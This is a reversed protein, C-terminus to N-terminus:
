YGAEGKRPPRGDVALRGAATLVALADVTVWENSCRRSVGGWDVLSRGRAGTKHTVRYYSAEAPFGGDPLRKSELLDLADVCRPDDLFGAEAMVKLGFLIDLTERWLWLVASTFHNCEQLASAGRCCSRRSM